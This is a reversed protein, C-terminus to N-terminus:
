FGNLETELETTSAPLGSEAAAATAPEVGPRCGQAAHREVSKIFAVLFFLLKKIPDSTNVHMEMVLLPHTM